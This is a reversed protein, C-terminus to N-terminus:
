IVFSPDYLAIAHTCSVQARDRGDLLLAGSQTLLIEPPFRGAPGPKEQTRVGSNGFVIQSQNMTIFDNSPLYKKM